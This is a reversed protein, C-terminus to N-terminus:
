ERQLVRRLLLHGLWKKNIMKGNAGLKGTRVPVWQDFIQYAHGKQFGFWFPRSLLAPISVGAVGGSEARLGPLLTVPGKGNTSATGVHGSTIGRQAEIAALSGKRNVATLTIRQHFPFLRRM